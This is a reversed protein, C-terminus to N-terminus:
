KRCGATDCYYCQSQKSNIFNSAPQPQLKSLLSQMMTNQEKVLQLQQLRMQEMAKTLQDMQPDPEAKTKTITSYLNVNGSANLVVSDELAAFALLKTKADQFRTL